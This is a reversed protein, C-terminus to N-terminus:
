AVSSPRVIREPTWHPYQARIRERAERVKRDIEAREFLFKQTRRLLPNYNVAHLDGRRAMRQVTTPDCGLVQAAEETTLLDSTSSM